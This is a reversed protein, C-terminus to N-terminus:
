FKLEEENEKRAKAFADPSTECTFPRTRLEKRTTMAFTNKKKASRGAGTVKETKSLELIFDFHGDIRDPRGMAKVVIPSDKKNWDEKTEKAMTTVIVNFGYMKSALFINSFYNDYAAHIDGYNRQDIAPAMKQGRSKADKLAAMHKEHMDMGYVKQTFDNKCGEYFMSENEHFFLRFGDPHEESHKRLEDILMDAAKYADGIDAVQAILFSDLYDKEITDVIIKDVSKVDMDVGAILIEEPKLGYTEAAWKVWRMIFTSKGFGAQAQVKLRLENRGEGKKFTSGRKLIIGSTQAARAAQTGM